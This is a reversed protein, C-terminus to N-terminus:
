HRSLVFRLAVFIAKGRILRRIPAGRRENHAARREKHEGCRENHVLVQQM